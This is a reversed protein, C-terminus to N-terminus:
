AALGPGTLSTRARARNRRTQHIRRVDQCEAWKGATWTRVAPWTSDADYLQALAWRPVKRSSAIPQTTGASAEATSCAIGTLEAGSVQSRM